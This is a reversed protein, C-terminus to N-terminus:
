LVCIAFRAASVSLPWCYLDWAMRSPSFEPGVALRLPPVEGNFQSMTSVLCGSLTSILVAAHM